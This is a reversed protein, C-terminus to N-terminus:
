GAPDFKQPGTQGARNGSWCVRTAMPGLVQTSEKTDLGRLCVMALFGSFLTCPSPSQTLGSQAGGPARSLGIMPTGVRSGPGAGCAM